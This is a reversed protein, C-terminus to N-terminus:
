ATREESTEFATIAPHAQEEEAPQLRRLVKSVLLEEAIIVSIPALMPLTEGFVRTETIVGWLMMLCYWGPLVMLWARLQADRVQRRYVILFPWLYAFASALQPWYRLRLFFKLNYSPRVYYESVNTSYVAYVVKHWALWYLGLVALPLWVRRRLLSQWHVGGEPGLCQSLAWFPLLLLTTERNLTAIAFFAAFWVFPKRFYILYFGLSFAALSPLDYVYSFNQVTHLVYTVCCLGLFLPYVLWSLLRVRSAASYLQVTVWGSFLVCTIGITFELVVAPTVGHPFFYDNRSLKDAYWIGWHSTDVLRYLPALLIRTQFPLPAYGREWLQINLYPWELYLYAGVFQTAALVALLLLGYHRLTASTGEASEGEDRRAMLRAKLAVRVTESRPVLAVPLHKGVRGQIGDQIPM